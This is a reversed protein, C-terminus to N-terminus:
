KNQPSKDSKKPSIKLPKSRPAFVRCGRGPPCPRMHGTDFIFNCMLNVAHEARYHLCDLCSKDM